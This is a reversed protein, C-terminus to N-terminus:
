KMNCPWLCSCYSNCVDCYHQTFVQHVNFSMCCFGDRKYCCLIYYPYLPLPLLFWLCVLKSLRSNISQISVYFSQVANKNQEKRQLIRFKKHMRRAWSHVGLILLKKLVLFSGKVVKFKHKVSLFWCSYFGMSKQKAPVLYYLVIQFPVGWQINSTELTIYFNVVYRTGAFKVDCAANAQERLTCICDDSLYWESSRILQHFSLM